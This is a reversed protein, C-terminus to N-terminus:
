NLEVDLLEVFFVLVFVLAVFDTEKNHDVLCDFRQDVSDDKIGRHFNCAIQIRIRRFPAVLDFVAIPVPVM